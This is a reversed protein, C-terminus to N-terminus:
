GRGWGALLVWSQAQQLEATCNLGARFGEQTTGMVCRWGQVRVMNKKKRSSTNGWNICPLTLGYFRVNQM